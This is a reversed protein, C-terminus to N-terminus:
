FARAGSSSAQLLSNGNASCSMQCLNLRMFASTLCKPSEDAPTSQAVPAYRAMLGSATAFARKSENSSCSSGRNLSKGLVMYIGVVVSLAFKNSSLLSDLERVGVEKRLMKLALQLVQVCTSFAGCAYHVLAANYMLTLGNVLDSSSADLHLARCSKSPLQPVCDPMNPTKVLKVLRSFRIKEMAMNFHFAAVRLKGQKLFDVGLDNLYSVEHQIKSSFTM